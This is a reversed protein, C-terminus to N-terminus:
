FVSIHEAVTGNAPFEVYANDPLKSFYGIAFSYLHKNGAIRFQGTYM